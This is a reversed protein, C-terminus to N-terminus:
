RIKEVSFIIQYKLKLGVANYWEQRKRVDRPLRFRGPGCYGISNCVLNQCCCPHANRQGDINSKMFEIGLLGAGCEKGTPFWGRRHWACKNYNWELACRM